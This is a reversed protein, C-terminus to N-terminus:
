KLNRPPTLRVGGVWRMTVGGGKSISGISPVDFRRLARHVRPMALLLSDAMQEGTLDARGLIFAATGSSLLAERELRNTSIRGDKTLIVWQRQGCTAIWLTDDADQSFHEDHREVAHGARQLRSAVVRGGFSRDVFFTFPEPLRV